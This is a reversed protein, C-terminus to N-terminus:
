RASHRSMPAALLRQLATGPRPHRMLSEGVLLAKYGAETLRRVDEATHIGSEAVATAIKAVKTGLRLTEDINVEFTRLTRSNVGILTFGIAVSRELEREDHVECLVDLVVDEAATKLTKLEEDNLAAVILLVADAGYARAEIVQAPDVIFDKRLCPIKVQQSVAALFELSGLFHAPETLVSLAAAGSQELEVALAVPDFDERILGKSPSAQKLEAIVAPSSNLLAKGFGRPTHRAARERLVGLTNSSKLDLVRQRAEAVLRDLISSM